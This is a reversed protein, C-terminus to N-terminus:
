VRFTGKESGVTVEIKPEVGFLNLVHLSLLVLANANFNTEAFIDTGPISVPNRLESSKRSFWLRKTGRLELVRSFESPRKTQVLKCTRLL